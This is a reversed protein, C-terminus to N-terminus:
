DSFCGPNQCTRSALVTQSGGVVARNGAYIFIFLTGLGGRGRKRERAAPGRFM